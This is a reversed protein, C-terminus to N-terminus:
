AKADKNCHCVFCFLRHLRPPVAEQRLKALLQLLKLFRTWLVALEHALIRLVWRGHWHEPHTLPHVVGVLIAEPVLEAVVADPHEVVVVSTNDEEVVVHVHLPKKQESKRLSTQCDVIEANSRM